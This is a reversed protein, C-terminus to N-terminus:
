IRGKMDRWLHLIKLRLNQLNAGFNKSLFSNGSLSFTPLPSFIHGQIGGATCCNGRAGEGALVSSCPVIGLGTLLSAVENASFHRLRGDTCALKM